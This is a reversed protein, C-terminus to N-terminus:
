QSSGRSKKAFLLSGRMERTESKVLFEPASDPSCTAGDTSWSPHATKSICHHWSSESNGLGRFSIIFVVLEEVLNKM